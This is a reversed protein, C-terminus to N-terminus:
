VFGNEELFNMSIKNNNDKASLIKEIYKGLIDTEINVFDGTKLNKLNTNNYTHPIIAATIINGEIKAITLSVGNITISGKYVAYKEHNHPIEFTLNYFEALQKCSLFKGKTDRELNVIDGSKISSFTTINLTEESINACFSDSSLKTVTQCVGNIAISDGIQTNGLVKSCKITINAGYTEKSFKEVIGTEEIIGTFM